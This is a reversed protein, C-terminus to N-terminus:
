FQTNTDHKWITNLYQTNITHNLTTDLYHTNLETDLYPAKTYHKLITNWDQTKM